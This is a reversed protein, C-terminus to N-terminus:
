ANNHEEIKKHIEGIWELSCWADLEKNVFVPFDSDDLEDTIGGIKDYAIKDLTMQFWEFENFPDVEELSDAIVDDTVGNTTFLTKGLYKGLTTKGLHKEM